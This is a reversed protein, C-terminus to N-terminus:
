GFSRDGADGLGPVIYAKKNLIPDVALTYVVAEPEAELVRQIGLKTSIVSAIFIKRYPYREKLIRIIKAMTSGTALMPDTLIIDKASSPLGLYGVDVEMDFGKSQADEEEVRKASIVGLKARELTELIGMALPIAARLIAIVAIDEDKVKIGEAETNLPTEVKEKTVDLESAIEYGIYVGAKTMLRRFEPYDTNKDRLRLLIDQLVPNELVRVKESLVWM